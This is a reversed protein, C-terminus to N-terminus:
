LVDGVSTVTTLIPAWSILSEDDLVKNSNADKVGFAFKFLFDETQFNVIDDVERANEENVTSIL